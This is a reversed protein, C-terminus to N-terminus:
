ANMFNAAQAIKNPGDVRAEFWWSVDGSRDSLVMEAPIAKTRSINGALHSAMPARSAVPQSTAISVAALMIFLVQMIPAMERDIM